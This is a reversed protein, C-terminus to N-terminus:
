DVAEQLHGLPHLLASSWWGRVQVTPAAAADEFGVNPPLPAITESSCIVHSGLCGTALGFVASGIALDPDPDIAVYGATTTGGQHVIVGSFDSGPDGPDGPYM